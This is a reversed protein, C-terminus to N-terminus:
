LLTHADGHPLSIGYAGAIVGVAGPNRESPVHDVGVHEDVYAAFLGQWPKSGCGIDVLRGSAYRSGAYTLVDEMVRYAIRNHVAENPHNWRTKGTASFQPREASRVKM